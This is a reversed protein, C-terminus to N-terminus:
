ATTSGGFDGKQEQMKRRLESLLNGVAIAGIMLLPLLATLAQSLGKSLRILPVAALILLTFIWSLIEIPAMAKERKRMLQVFFVWVTAVVFYAYYECIAATHITPYASFRDGFNVWAIFLVIQAIGLWAFATISTLKKIVTKAGLDV